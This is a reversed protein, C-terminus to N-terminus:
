ASSIIKAVIIRNMPISDPNKKYRYAYLYADLEDSCIEIWTSGNLITVRIIVIM